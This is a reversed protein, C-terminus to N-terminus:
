KKSLNSKLDQVKKTLGEDSNTMNELAGWLYEPIVGEQQWRNELDKILELIDTKNSLGEMGAVHDRFSDIQNTEYEPQSSVLLDINSTTPVTETAPNEAVEVVPETTPPPEPIQKSSNEALTPESISCNNYARVMEVLNKIRYRKEELGTIIEPCDGLFDTMQNKFNFKNVEIAKGNKSLVRSVQSSSGYKSIYRYASLPGGEMLIMFLRQQQYIVPEFLHEESYYVIRTLHPKLELKEGADTVFRISRSNDLIPNVHAKGYVTDGNLKVYYHQAQCTIATFITLLFSILYNKM